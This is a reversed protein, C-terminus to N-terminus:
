PTKKFVINFFTYIKSYMIQKLICFFINKKMQLRIKIHAYKYFFVNGKCIKNIVKKQLCGLSGM